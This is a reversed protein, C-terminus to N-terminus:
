KLKRLKKLKFYTRLQPILKTRIFLFILDLFILLTLTPIFMLFVDAYNSISCWPLLDCIKGYIIFVPLALLMLVISDSYDRQATSIITIIVALLGYTTLPFRKVFNLVKKM